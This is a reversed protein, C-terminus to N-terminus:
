LETSMARHIASEARQHGVFEFGILVVVPALMVIMLCVAMYVGAGALLVAGILVALCACVWLVHFIDISRVTYIYLAFICLLYIGVPTAVTLVTEVASLKSRDEIYYAAAHLGAGTAVISGFIVIHGYGFAFPQNRHTHLLPAAPVVFYVWWMGFTLGTGTIAVLAAGVSWGQEGVVASVTAVTGVVGEGLTIITLLSYREAIHHPHWPTGGRVNEAIWPGLFEMLILVVYLALTVPVSTHLIFVGVWGIQTIVIALVYTLCAARREPDQRSARLWQLVMGIRMVIYGAVLVRIDVTRGEAISAYVPPIGMALVIVGVMQLMTLVRYVWDDTDYASAFWAFNIWAWSVAFTSFAFGAAAAGAHNETIMHAFESASIGFAIVFTLDFLLELPTATRHEEDPDRGSMPRLRHPRTRELGALDFESM